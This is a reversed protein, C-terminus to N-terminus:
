MMLVGGSGANSSTGSGACTPSSVCNVSREVSASPKIMSQFHSKSSSPMVSVTSWFGCNVKEEVPMKGTLSVTVSLSPTARDISLTIVTAIGGVAVNSKEGPAGTTPWSTCNLSREVSSPEITPQSQSRSPSVNVSLLLWNGVCVYRDAPATSTVSLTTSLWPAEADTTWATTTPTPKGGTGPNSKAGVGGSAPSGTWNLSREM